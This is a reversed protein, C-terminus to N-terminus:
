AELPIGDFNIQNLIIQRRNKKNSVNCKMIHYDNLSTITPHFQSYLIHVPNETTNIFKVYPNNPSIITNGCFVGPLIEQSHVVMDYTCPINIIRRVVESRKPLIFGNNLNDYIPITIEENNVNFKLLWSEYDIICRHSSLFDRGLIGDTMIPFEDNVLHFKHKICLGGEFYLDTEASAITEITDDTIGTLRIRETLNILYNPNLKSIKFISIDAGCDIIFTNRANTMQVNVAIFNSANLNM